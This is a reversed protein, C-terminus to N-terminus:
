IDPFVIGLVTFWREEEPINKKRKRLAREQTHAIYMMKRTTPGTM